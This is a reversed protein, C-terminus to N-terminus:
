RKLSIFGRLSEGAPLDIVYFYTGNVLLKDVKVNASGRFVREDNDYDDIEFVKDGWRNFLTFKNKPFYEINEIILFDNQNDGNPSVANYVILGGDHSTSALALYPMSVARDSIVVGNAATGESGSRGLSRFNETLSPSEVVVVHALDSLGAEDRVPLAVRAGNLSGGTVDIHWYRTGSIADLSPAKPLIDSELEVSEVGIVAAPDTINILTVPLYVSGNGLPFLKDGSGEQYVPAHIHAADSGGTLTAAPNIIVRANNESEIVGDALILQDEITVDALILKRGGGSITLKSFSQNSHNIIQPVTPSTSNFTIEGAGANYTGTNLWMGGIVLNGNNIFTGTNVLSDKVSFITGDVVSVTSGNNYFSQAIAASDLFLMPVTVAFWLVQHVLTLPTLRSMSDCQTSSM